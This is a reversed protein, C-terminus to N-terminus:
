FMFVVILFIKETASGRRIKLDNENVYGVKKNSPTLSMMTRIM